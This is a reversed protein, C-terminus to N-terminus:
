LGSTSEDGAPAPAVIAPEHKCELSAIVYFTVDRIDGYTSKLHAEAEALHTQLPAHLM